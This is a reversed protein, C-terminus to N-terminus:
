INGYIKKLIEMKKITASVKKETIDELNTIAGTPCVISCLEKEKDYCGDCKKAINNVIRIAGFPCALACLGCGICKEEIVVVKNNIREIAREPCVTLCPNKECHYCRIPVGDIIYVGNKPCVRECKKCDICLSPNIM